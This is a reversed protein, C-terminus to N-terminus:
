RPNSRPRANDSEIGTLFGGIKRNEVREDSADFVLFLDDAIPVLNANRWTSATHRDVPPLQEPSETAITLLPM